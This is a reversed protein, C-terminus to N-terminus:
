KLEVRNELELMSIGAQDYKQLIEIMRRVTASYDPLDKNMKHHYGFEASKEAIFLRTKPDVRVHVIADKTPMQIIIKYRQAKYYTNRLM